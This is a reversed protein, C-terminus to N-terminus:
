GGSRCSTTECCYCRCASTIRTARGEPGWRGHAAPGTFARTSNGVSQTCPVWLNQMSGVHNPELELARLFALRSQELRGLLGYTSGLVFHPAALTSDIAAADPALQIADDAHKRDETYARFFVRYAMAAKARALRPDLALAREFLGIAELNRKPDAMGRMAQAQLYLAYAEPNQTGQPELRVREAPSLTAALRRAIQLAVQSQVTLIDALERDYQESWRTQQTVADVLEVAVRVRDGEVRVSGEVLHSGGFDRAIAPGDADGFRDVASRSLVRLASIKSLQGRIEDTMGETFFSQSGDQSLSRFPRM